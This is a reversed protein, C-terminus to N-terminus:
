AGTEDTSNAEILQAYCAGHYCDGHTGADPETARSTERSRGEVLLIIPEYVGIVDGCRRCRPAGNM